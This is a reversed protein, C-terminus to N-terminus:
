SAQWVVKNELQEVQSSGTGTHAQQQLSVSAVTEARKIPRSAVPHPHLRRKTRRGNSDHPSSGLAPHQSHPPPAPHPIIDAPSPTTSTSSTSSSSSSQKTAENGRLRTPTPFLPQRNGKRTLNNRQTGQGRRQKTTQGDFSISQRGMTFRESSKEAPSKASDPRKRGEGRKRRMRLAASAPVPLSFRWRRWRRREYLVEEEQM